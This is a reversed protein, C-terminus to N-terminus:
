LWHGITIFKPNPNDRRDEWRWCFVLAMVMGADGALHNGLDERFMPHGLGCFFLAGLCFLLHVGGVIAIAMVFQKCLMM